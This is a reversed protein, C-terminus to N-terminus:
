RNRRRDTMDVFDIAFGYLKTRASTTVDIKVQMTNGIAPANRPVDFSVRGTADIARSNGATSNFTPTITASATDASVSLTQWQRQAFPNDAYVPQYTISFNGYAGTQAKVTWTSAGDRGVILPARLFRSYDGHFPYEHSITQSLRDTNTNYIWIRGNAASPERLLIENHEEDAVMFTATNVNYPGDSWPPCALQDHVRGQTILRANTAGEIATLGDSTHSYVIDGLTCIALSGAVTINTAIPDARWDYGKGPTGGTGSYRWLADTYYAIIADRTSAVACPTGRAFTDRQIRPWSEPAGGESWAIDSPKVEYPVSRPTDLPGPLRPDWNDGRSVAITMPARSDMSHRASLLVGDTPQTSFDGGGWSYPPLKLSLGELQLNLIYGSIGGNLSYWDLIFKDQVSGGDVSVAFHDVAFVDVSSGDATAPSSFTFSSGGVTQIYANLGTAAVAMGPQIWALQSTPSVTCTTGGNSYTCGTLLVRGASNAIQEDSMAADALGWYGTPRITISPPRTVGLGFLYGKHSTILEFAPPVSAAAAAGAVAQNTYLAEGLSTDPTNDVIEVTYTGYVLDADTLVYSTAKRYESGAEEGRQYTAFSGAGAPKSLTRYVEITDGAIYPSVGTEVKPNFFLLVSTASGSYYSLAPSPASLIVKDNVTRKAVLVYHAYTDSAFATGSGNSQLGELAPAPMGAARPAANASSTPTYTDWVLVNSYTNLFIQQGVIAYSFEPQTALSISQAFGITGHQFQLSAAGGFLQAGTTQNFWCYKWGATVNFIVLMYPGPTAIVFAGTTGADSPITARTAWAPLNEIVGPSREVADTMVALAGAPIQGLKNPETVIGLPELVLQQTM